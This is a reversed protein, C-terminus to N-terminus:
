LSHSSQSHYSEGLSCISNMGIAIQNLSLVDSCKTTLIRFFLTTEFDFRTM